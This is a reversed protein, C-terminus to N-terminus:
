DKLNKIISHSFDRLTTNINGDRDHNHTITIDGNSNLHLDIGIDSCLESTIELAKLTDNSVTECGVKIRGNKFKVEYGGIKIPEDKIIEAWQGDQYVSPNSCFEGYNTYMASRLSDTNKTYYFKIPTKRDYKEITRIKNGDDFYSKFKTGEKYGRRKAEAILHAEIESPTLKRGIHNDQVTIKNDIIFLDHSHSTIRGIRIEDDQCLSTKLLYEVWDGVKFESKPEEEVRKYLIGNINIEKEM